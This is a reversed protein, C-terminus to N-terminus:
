RKQKCFHRPCGPGPGHCPLGDHRGDVDSTPPLWGEFGHCSGPLQDRGHAITSGELKELAKALFGTVDKGIVDVNQKTQGRVLSQKVGLSQPLVDILEYSAALQTADHHPVLKVQGEPRSLESSFHNRGPLGCREPGIGAGNTIRDATFGDM